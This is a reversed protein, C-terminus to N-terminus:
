CGLVAALECLDNVSFDWNDEPEQDFTQELGHEKRPLFATSLGQEKAARLDYNHCAVMLIEGPSLGLMEIATQYIRPDPKYAKANEATLVCDFPLGVHKAINVLWVFNGNSLTSVLYRSKLRRIGAVSDPWAIPRCWSLNLREREEETADALGYQPLLEDLRDRFIKDVNIWTIQGANVKDMAPRYTTKWADTFAAWDADVGKAAGFQRLEQIVATRWDVVTGFVDFTLAKIAM